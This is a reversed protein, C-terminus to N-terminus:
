GVPVAERQSQRVLDAYLGGLAMLSAHTGDAVLRGRDLVVIRPLARVSELRHTIVITTRGRQLEETAERIAAEAAADVSSTAEDLLLVPADKLLARAIAIRQRQGGSLRVGNEGVVTDYGNPLGRVFADIHAARAAAEVEADSAELRGYRINDRISGAFLYVDQSVIAINRRISETRLDRLDVGDLRVCGSTPDFFRLLLHLLTTKGAGSLGVIAVHEGPEIRLSLDTLVPRGPEYDFSVADFEISGRARPLVIASPADIIEPETDLLEFVRESAGVIQHSWTYLRILESIGQTINQAYFMFAVFDGATLRGQLVERGGYWFIIVISVMFLLEVIVHLATTAIAVNRTVGYLAQMASIYRRVEYAGRHFAKVLRIGALAEHAVANAEAQRDQLQRSLRQVRPGWHRSVLTAVPTVLFIVLSLRWNLALMVGVSGVLKFAQLILSTSLDTIASRISGVDSTLRSLLDGTRQNSFYRLGLSHLHRYVRTRLDLTIREGTLQLVLPGVFNLAARLVYLGLLLLALEDLSSRNGEHIAADLLERLGLPLVLAVGVSLGALTISLAM